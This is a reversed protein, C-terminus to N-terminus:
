HEACALYKLVALAFTTLSLPLSLVFVSWSSTLGLAVSCGATFKPVDFGDLVM